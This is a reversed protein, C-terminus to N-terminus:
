IVFDAKESANPFQLSFKPETSHQLSSFHQARNKRSYGSSDMESLHEKLFVTLVKWFWPFAPPDERLSSFM